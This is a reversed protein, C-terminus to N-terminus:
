SLIDEAPKTLRDFAERPTISNARAYEMVESVGPKRDDDELEPATTLKEAIRELSGAISILALAQAHELGLRTYDFDLEGHEEVRQLAKKAQELVSM